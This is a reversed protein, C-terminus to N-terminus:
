SGYRSSTGCHRSIDEDTADVSGQAEANGIKVEGDEREASTGQM